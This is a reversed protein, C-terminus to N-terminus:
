CDSTEAICRDRLDLRCGRLHVYRPRRAHELRPQLATLSPLLDDLYAGSDIHLQHSRVGMCVPLQLHRNGPVKM